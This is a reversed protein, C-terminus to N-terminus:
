AMYECVDGWLIFDFLFRIGTFHCGMFLAPLPPALMEGEKVKCGKKM